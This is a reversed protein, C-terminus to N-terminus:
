SLNDVFDSIKRSCKNYGMGTFPALVSSALRFLRKLIRFAM